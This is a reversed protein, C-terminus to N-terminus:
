LKFGVLRCEPQPTIGFKDFVLKQMNRVLELIDSSTAHGRNIIINAHKPSVIADGVSLKKAGVQDLYYAAALIKKGNIDVNVEDATFNRFFSGCSHSTPLKSNRHRIIETKRGRAYAAELESVQKLKFTASVLYYEEAQLMSKDYGFNFWDNSVTSIEGTTRHIVQAEHLFQSLLFEYYHMNIYVAGGMSGPIGSFEELGLISHDLCFEILNDMTVGAEATVLIDTDDVPKIEIQDLAPCIVLGDFGADSILINAGEGLMFIPLNKDAAFVVAQQLEAATKPQAFYAASGGTRFWNKDALPINTTLM